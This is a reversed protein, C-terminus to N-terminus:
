SFSDGLTSPTSGQAQTTCVSDPLCLSIESSGATPVQCLWLTCVPATIVCAHAGYLVCIASLGGIYIRENM